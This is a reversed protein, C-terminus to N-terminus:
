KAATDGDKKQETYTVQIQSFNMSVGGGAVRDLEKSSLEQNREEGTALETNQERHEPKKTEDM